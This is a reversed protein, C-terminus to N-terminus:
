TKLANVEALAKRKSLDPGEIEVEIEKRLIEGTGCLEGLRVPEPLVRLYRIIAMDRPFERNMFAAGDISPMDPTRRIRDYVAVSLTMLWFGGVLTAVTVLGTVFRRNAFAAPYAPVWVLTMLLPVLYYGELWFRMTVNFRKNAGGGLHTFEAVSFEPFFWILFTVAALTVLPLTDIQGIDGSQRPYGLWVLASCALAVAAGGRGALLLGLVAILVVWLRKGTFANRELPWLGAFMAAACAAAMFLLPAFQASLFGQFPSAIEREVWYWTVDPRQTDLLAPLSLLLTLVGFLGANALLTKSGPWNQKLVRTMGILTLTPVFVILDLLVSGPHALLLATALCGCLFVRAGAVDRSSLLLIMSGFFAIQIFYIRQFAHHDGQIFIWFPFQTVAHAIVNNELNWWWGTGTGRLLENLTTYIGNLHMSFFVGLGVGLSIMLAQRRSLAPNFLRMLAYCWAALSFSGWLLTFADSFVFLISGAGADGTLNRWGWGALGPLAHLLVYYDIQEGASWLNEPPYGRGYLFAQIMSFNFLKESGMRAVSSEWHIGPWTSRLWVALVLVIAFVKLLLGDARQDWSHGPLASGGARAPGGQTWALWGVLSLVLLVAPVTVEYAPNVRALLSFLLLGLPPGITLSISYLPIRQVDGFIARSLPMAVAAAWGVVALYLFIPGWVSM